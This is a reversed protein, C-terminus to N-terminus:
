PFPNCGIFMIEEVLISKYTFINISNILSIPPVILPLLSSSYLIFPILSLPIMFKNAVVKNRNVGHWFRWESRGLCTAVLSREQEVRLALM